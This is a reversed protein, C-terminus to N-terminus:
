IGLHTGAIWFGICFNCIRSHPPEAVIVLKKRQHSRVDDAYDRGMSTTGCTDTIVFQGPYLRLKMETCVVPPFSLKLFNFVGPFFTLHV